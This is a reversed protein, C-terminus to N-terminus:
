KNVYGVERGKEGDINSEREWIWTFRGGLKGMEGKLAGTGTRRNRDRSSGMGMGHDKKIEMTDETVGLSISAYSSASVPDM